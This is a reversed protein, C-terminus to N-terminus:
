RTAEEGGRGVVVMATTWVLHCCLPALVGGSWASLAVWAAGGVAAGLVISISGSAANAAVALVWTGAAATLPAVSQAFRPQVLGRWFLEEFTVSLVTLALIIALPHDTTSRYVRDADERFGRWRATVVIFLRTAAFLAVGAALGVAAAVGAGVSGSFVPPRVLVGATGIAVLTPTMTAWVGAGRRIATWALAITAAGALTVVLEM